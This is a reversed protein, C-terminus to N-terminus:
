FNDEAIQTDVLLPNDTLMDSISDEESELDMSDDFLSEFDSNIDDVTIFDSTDSLTVEEDLAALKVDEIGNTNNPKYSTYSIDNGQISFISTYGGIAFGLHLEADRVQIMSNEKMFDNFIEARSTRNNTVLDSVVIRVPEASKKSIFDYAIAEASCRKVGNNMDSTSSDSTSNNATNTNSGTNNYNSVPAKLGYTWETKPDNTTDTLEFIGHISNIIPCYTARSHESEFLAAGSFYQNSNSMYQHVTIGPVIKSDIAVLAQNPVIVGADKLSKETAQYEDWARKFAEQKIGETVNKTNIVALQQALKAVHQNHKKNDWILEPNDGTSTFPILMTGLNAEVLVSNYPSGDRNFNAMMQTNSDNYVIRNDRNTTYMKPDLASSLFIPRTQQNPINTYSNTVQMLQLQFFSVTGNNALTAIYRIVKEASRFLQITAKAQLNNQRVARKGYVVPKLTTAVSTFRPAQKTTSQAPTISM